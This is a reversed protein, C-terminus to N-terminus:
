IFAIFFSLIVEELRGQVGSAPDPARRVRGPHPEQGVPEAEQAAQTNFTVYLLSHTSLHTVRRTSSSSCSSCLSSSPSPLTGRERGRKEFFRWLSPLGRDRGKGRGCYSMVDVIHCELLSHSGSRAASSAFCANPQTPCGLVLARNEAFDEYRHNMLKTAKHQPHTAGVVVDRAVNVNKTLTVAAFMTFNNQERRREVPGPMDIGCHRRWDTGIRDDIDTGALSVREWAACERSPAAFSEM